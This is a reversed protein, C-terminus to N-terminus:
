NAPQPSACLTPCSRSPEPRRFSFRSRRSRSICDASLRFRLHFRGFGAVSSSVHAATRESLNTWSDRQKENLSIALNSLVIRHLNRDGRNLWQIITVFHTRGIGSTRRKRVRRWSGCGSLSHASVEPEEMLVELDHTLLRM